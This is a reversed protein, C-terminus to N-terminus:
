RPGPAGTCEATYDVHQVLRSASVQDHGALNIRLWLPPELGLGGGLGSAIGATGGPSLPAFAGGRGERGMETRNAPLSPAGPGPREATPPDIYWPTAVMEVGAFPLSGSNVVDQRVAESPAGPRAEVALSSMGLRLSCAYSVPPPTGRESAVTGFRTLHYTYIVLDGGGDRDIRCEGGAGGLQVHVRETDDAACALDIPRIPGGAADMYFARGGAQGELSIRVPKSFEIRSGNEGGIEVVRQLMVAGSGDYALAGQVASDSPLGGDAPVVIRLVLRGDAPVSTATVGPPFSVSAFSTSVSAGDRPFQVTGGATGAGALGSM